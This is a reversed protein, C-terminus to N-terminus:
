GERKRLGALSSLQFQPVAFALVSGWRYVMYCIFNGHNPFVVAYFLSFGVLLAAVSFLIQLNFRDIAWGAPIMCLAFVILHIDNGMLYSGAVM